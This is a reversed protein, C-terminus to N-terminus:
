ESSIRPLQSVNLLHLFENLEQLKVPNISLYIHRGEKQSDVLGADVLAKVHQSMSPQSIPVFAYLDACALRQVRAIEQLIRLRHPDSLSKALKVLSKTDM